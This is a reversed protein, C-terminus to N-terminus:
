IGDQFPKQGRSSFYYRLGSVVQLLPANGSTIHCPRLQCPVFPGGGLNIHDALHKWKGKKIDNRKPEGKQRKQNAIRGM